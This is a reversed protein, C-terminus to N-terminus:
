PLLGYDLEFSRLKRSGTPYHLATCRLFLETRFCGVTQHFFTFISPSFIFTQLNICTKSIQRNTFSQFSNSINTRNAIEFYKRRIVFVCKQKNFSSYANTFMVIYVDGVCVILKTIMADGGCIVSLLLMICFLSYRLQCYYSLM